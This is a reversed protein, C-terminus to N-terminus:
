RRNCVYEVDDSMFYMKNANGRVFEVGSSEGVKPLLSDVSISDTLENKTIFKAKTSTVTTMMSKGKLQWKGHVESVFTFPKFGTESLDLQMNTVSHITGDEFVKDNSVATIGMGAQNTTFICRWNGVINKELDFQGDAFVLSPLLLVGMMVAQYIKM